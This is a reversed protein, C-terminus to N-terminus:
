ALVGSEGNCSLDVGVTQPSFRWSCFRLGGPKHTAKGKIISPGALGECLLEGFFQSLNCFEGERIGRVCPFNAGLNGRSHPFSVGFACAKCNNPLKEAIRPIPGPLPMKDNKDLTVVCKERPDCVCLPGQPCSATAFFPCEGSPRAQWFGAPVHQQFQVGPFSTWKM